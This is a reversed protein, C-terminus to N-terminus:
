FASDDFFYNKKEDKADHCESSIPDIFINKFICKKLPSLFISDTFNEM